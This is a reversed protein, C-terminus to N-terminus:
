LWDNKIEKIFTKVLDVDKIGTASEFRSNVDVAFFGRNEISKITENDGPGIGGSLFFPKDLTYERLKEWSFKRGSGGAKESKTDFLFYDCVPLYLDLSEFRFDRDIGFAKIIILGSSRLERCSSPSENGHLQVMELGARNSLDLIKHNEENLFVGVKKIDAPIKDFLTMEPLSGVYRPSESSFIFGMFDPKAKAIEQGNCPDTIGCIKIKIM